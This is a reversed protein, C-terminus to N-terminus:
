PTERRDRGLLTALRQTRGDDGVVWLTAALVLIVLSVILLVASWSLAAVTATVTGATTAVATRVARM